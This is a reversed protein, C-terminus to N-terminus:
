RDRGVADKLRDLVACARDHDLATLRLRYLCGTSELRSPLSAAKGASTLLNDLLRSTGRTGGLRVHHDGM